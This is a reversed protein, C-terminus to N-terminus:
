SSGNGQRANRRQKIREKIIQRIAERRENRNEMLSDPIDLRNPFLSDREANPTTFYRNLEEAKKRSFYRDAQESSMAKRMSIFNEGIFRELEQRSKLFEDLAIRSKNEDFKPQRLTEAYKRRMEVSRQRLAQSENRIKQLKGKYEEKERTIQLSDAESTNTGSVSPFPMTGTALRFALTGIFALNFALSCFILIRQWSLNKWFTTKM